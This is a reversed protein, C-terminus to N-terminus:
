GFMTALELIKEQSFDKPDDIIGAQRRESLVVIKDSLGIVEKMESSVMLISKGEEAFHRILKYIEAKAGVDIGRTPEDFILIDAGTSLSKAIVVKQQNGGSLTSVVQGLGSAKIKLKSYYEESTEKLKDKNLFVGNSLRPLCSSTINWDIAQVGFFGKGKRDETIMNIGYKTAEPVSKFRVEEGKVMLTGEEIPKVGAILEMLETRGCGLLGAFGVIEGKKLSFSVDKITNGSVHELCMVEDGLPTERKPFEDTLERGVMMKILEAKTANKTEVTGIYEGDRMVTVRDSIKFVEDMRHSIYIVAVNREKLQHIISFLVDVEEDTLPATPEDFIVVKINEHSIAKTIEVLQQYGVTLSSILKDAPVNIGWEDFIKQAKAEVEKKRYIFSKEGLFMNDAVSLGPVLNLEQYVTRIGLDSSLEPTLYDYEKGEFTIKGMDPAIAGSIVKILTSKGAGNEGCLAHVEGERFDINVNNLAIVGPYIKKINNLQLIANNNM